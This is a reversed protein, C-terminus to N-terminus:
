RSRAGNREVVEACSATPLLRKLDLWTKPRLRMWIGLCRWVSHSRCLEDNKTCLEENQICLEENKTCLEENQICLEENKSVIVPWVVWLVLVIPIVFEGIMLYPSCKRHKYSWSTAGM